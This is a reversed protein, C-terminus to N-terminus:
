ELERNLRPPFNRQDISNSEPNIIITDYEYLAYAAKDSAIEPRCLGLVDIKTDPIESGKYTLGVLLVNKPM